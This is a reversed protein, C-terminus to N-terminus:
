ATIRHGAGLAGAIGVLEGLEDHIHRRALSLVCRLRGGIFRLAFAASGPPLGSGSCESRRLPRGDGLFRGLSSPFLRRVGLM